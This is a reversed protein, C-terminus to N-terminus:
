REVPITLHAQEDFAPERDISNNPGLEKGTRGAPSPVKGKLDETNIQQEFHQLLYGECSNKLGNVSDVTLCNYSSVM